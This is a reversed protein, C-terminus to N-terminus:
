QRIKIENNYKKRDKTVFECELLSKQFLEKATRKFYVKSSNPSVDIGKIFMITEDKNKRNQLTLKGSVTENRDNVVYVKIVGNEEVPIILIDDYLRKVVELSPKPMGYYDILSWSVVPNCDNFQWLLTGMCYPMARRQAEIATKLCLIQLTQTNKMFENYDSTKLGYMEMYKTLTEYGTPHKQHTKLVDSFLYRDKIDTFRNITSTDPFGQFGYESMFRPVKKELTDFKELGWWVGWYHSDGQTMSEKHGWGIEPSTHVYKIEPTYEYVLSPLLEKFLKNYGNEILERQAQRFDKNWGWNIWGEYIENNGCWLAISPHNRLRKINYVAEEKVNDIFNDSFPYMACAFMFDQWVLIGNEDCQNYFEDDEYVGGGWVRLMNMNMEKATKILERYKEKTVRPLFNDAPIYNAGKMFVPVSNLKFYFSMGASDKDQILEIKRIGTRISRTDLTGGDRKLVVDFDYLYPEGLGNSWWLKPNEIIVSLSKSYPYTQVTNDSKNVISIEYQSKTESILDINFYLFAKTYDDNFAQSILVNEIKNNEYVELYVNRWIGCTVLRPSWDWGYHYAAKRTFIRGTEPLKKLGTNKYFAKALSDEIAIPSRFIIELVNNGKNLYKNIDKVRYGRFMNEAYLVKKGNIFVNAYTDLGEFVLDRKEELNEVTFETRYIWDEKEIWQVKKENDRYFPDEIIGNALLDTHVTGPVTAPLYKTDKVNKFSWKDFKVKTVQAFLCNSILLLVIFFLIRTKNKM